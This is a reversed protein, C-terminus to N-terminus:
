QTHCALRHMKKLHVMYLIAYILSYGAVAQIASISLSIWTLTFIVLTCQWYLDWKQNNTLYVIYSLPNSLFRMFFMPLLAFCLPGVNQWKPNLLVDILLETFIIVGFILFIAAILLTQFSKHFIPKLTGSNQLEDTSHKKLVDLVAKGLIGIPAALLKITFAFLGAFEAGFKYAIILVPAQSACANLFDAPLSYVIFLKRKKWYDIMKTLKINLFNNIPSIYYCMAFTLILGLFHALILSSSNTYLQAAFIQASLIVTSFIIRIFGLAKFKGLCAFWSQWLLGLSWFISALPITLILWVDTNLLKQIPVIFSLLFGMITLSLGLVITNISTIFVADQKTDDPELVIAHELRLTLIVSITMVIALWSAYVGFAQPSYLRTLLLTGIIPITQAILTTTFTTTLHSFFIDERLNELLKKCKQKLASIAKPM